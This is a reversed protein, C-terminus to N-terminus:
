FKLERDEFQVGTSASVMHLHYRPRMDVHEKVYVDLHLENRAIREPTNNMHDCFLLYDHIQKTYKLEDLTWNVCTTIAWRTYEDNIEFLNWRMNSSISEKLVDKWHPAKTWAPVFSLIPLSFLGLFLSRRNMM